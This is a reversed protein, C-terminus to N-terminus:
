SVVFAVRLPDGRGMNYISPKNKGLFDESILHDQNCATSGAETFSGGNLESFETSREYNGAAALLFQLFRSSFNSRCTRLDLRKGDINAVRCSNLLHDVADDLPKAPDIDEDIVSCSIKRNM